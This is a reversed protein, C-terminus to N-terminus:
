PSPPVSADLHIKHTYLCNIAKKMPLVYMAYTSTVTHKHLKVEYMIFIIIIADNYENTPTKTTFVQYIFLM